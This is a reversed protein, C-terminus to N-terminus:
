GTYMWTQLLIIRQYIFLMAISLSNNQRWSSRERLSESARPPSQYDLKSRSRLCVCALSLHSKSRDNRLSRDRRVDLSSPFFGSLSVYALLVSGEFSAGVKSGTASMSSIERQERILEAVHGSTLPGGTCQCRARHDHQMIARVRNVGSKIISNAAESRAYANGQVCTPRALENVSQIWM